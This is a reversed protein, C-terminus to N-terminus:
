CISIGAPERKNSAELECVQVAIAEQNSSYAISGISELAAYQHEQRIGARRIHTDSNVNEKGKSERQNREIQEKREKFDQQECWEFFDRKAESM